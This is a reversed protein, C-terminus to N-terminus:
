LLSWGRHFKREGSIVKSLNGQLLNNERCLRSVNRTEVIEGEPNRLFFIKKNSYEKNYQDSCWELNEVHNDTKIENKHNVCRFNKPNDIFNQAVLRHVFHTTRKGFSDTLVVCRYGRNNGQKLKGVVKNRLKPFNGLTFVNGSDDIEYLGEYNKIPKIM